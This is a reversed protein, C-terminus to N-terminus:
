STGLERYLCEITRKVQAAVTPAPGTRELFKDLAEKDAADLRPLGQEETLGDRFLYLYEASRYALIRVDLLMCELRTMVNGLQEDDSAHERTAAKVYDPHPSTPNMRAHQYHFARLHFLWHQYSPEAPPGFLRKYGSDEPRQEPLFLYREDPHGNIGRLNCAHAIGVVEEITMSPLHHMFGNTGVHAITEPNDFRWEKGQTDEYVAGPRTYWRILRPDKRRAVEDYLQSEPPKTHTRGYGLNRVLVAEPNQQWLWRSFEDVFETEIRWHGKGVCEDCECHPKECGVELAFGDAQPYLEWMRKVYEMAPRYARTSCLARRESELPWAKVREPPWTCALSPDMRILGPSMGMWNFLGSMLYVKMGLSQIYECIQPIYDCRSEVTKEFGPLPARGSVFLMVTDYGYRSLVSYHGKWYELPFNYSGGFECAYVIQRSLAPTM